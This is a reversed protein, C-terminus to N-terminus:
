TKLSWAMKAHLVSMISWRDPNVSKDCLDSVVSGGRTVREQDENYITVLCDWTILNGETDLYCKSGNSKSEKFQNRTNKTNHTSCHSVYVWRSPDYSNRFRICDDPLWVVDDPLDQKQRLYTFVKQFSGGADCVFHFVMSGVIECAMIVIILQHLVVDASLSGSNFFAM